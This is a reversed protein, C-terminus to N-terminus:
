RVFLHLDNVATKDQSPPTFASRPDPSKGDPGPPLKPLELKIAEGTLSEMFAVVDAKEQATLNLKKKLEFDLYPNPNGGKDYHEVVEALTKISGDHMYPATKAIERVTPTKFAGLSTMNKAGVPEAGFRGPDKFEKKAEDWGVGLNHFQEDTFNSGAHCATCAAKRKVVGKMSDKYEDDDNLDLGFLVMGRKQSENLAKNDGKVYKDYASNGSLVTREFSAIAKAMGDLTVDTGFVKKFQEKYGDIKRFRDVIEKYTQDGMEIPNRPPGQCQGELSPARGDWFMSRGYVTNIVSPASRGGKQGHIGTSVPSQDTWGKEPNHCTACSVTGNKSLRPDFYIQKGLEIKGKTLPNAAPVVAVPTLESLGAPPTITVPEDQILAPDSPLWLYNDPTGETASTTEKVLSVLSLPNVEGTYNYTSTQSAPKSAEAQTRDAAPKAETSAKEEVKATTEPAAADDVNATCGGLVILCATAPYSLFRIMRSM